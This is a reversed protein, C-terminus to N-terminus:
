LFYGSSKHLTALYGDFAALDVEVAVPVVALFTSAIEIVGLFVLPYFVTGQAAAVLNVIIFVISRM